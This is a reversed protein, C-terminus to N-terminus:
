AFSTQKKKYKGVCKPETANWYGEISEKSEICCRIATPDQIRYGNKCKYSVVSNCQYGTLTM